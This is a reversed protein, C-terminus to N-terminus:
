PLIDAVAIRGVEVGDLVVPVEEGPKYDRRAGYGSETPQTYVEVQNAKLNVIWYVAIGGLPYDTLKKSHDKRVTADSVEILIAIDAPGPHRQAYVRASGRVIAIDPLPEYSPPIQVPKDERTSWGDPLKRDIL